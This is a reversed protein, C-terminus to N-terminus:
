FDRGTNKQSAQETLWLLNRDGVGDIWNSRFLIASLDKMQEVFDNIGHFRKQIFVKEDNILLLDNISDIAGPLDEREHTSSTSGVILVNIM